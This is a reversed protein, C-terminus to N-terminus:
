SDEEREKYGYYASVTRFQRPTRLAHPPNRFPARRQLVNPPWRSKTNCLAYQTARVFQFIRLVLYSVCGRRVSAEGGHGEGEGVVGLVLERGVAEPLRHAAELLDSRRVLPGRRPGLLSRGLSGHYESLMLRGSWPTM